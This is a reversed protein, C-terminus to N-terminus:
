SIKAIKYCATITATITATSRVTITIAHNTGSYFVETTYNSSATGCLTIVSFNSNINTINLLVTHTVTNLNSLYFNVCYLGKTSISNANASSEEVNNGNFKGAMNSVTMQLDDIDEDAQSIWGLLQVDGFSSYNSDYIFIDDDAINIYRYDNNSTKQQLTISSESIDITCTGVSKKVYSNNINNVTATLTSLSDSLSDLSDKVLKESPYNDNSLTSSWSSVRKAKYADLDDKLFGINNIAKNFTDATPVDNNTFQNNNNIQSLNTWSKSWTAM